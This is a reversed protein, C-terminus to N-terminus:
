RPEDRGLGAQLLRVLDQVPLAGSVTPGTGIRYSPVATVGREIARREDTRVEGTYRGSRLAQEAVPEAIGTRAALGVLVGRDSLDLADAHYASFLQDLLQEGMGEDVALHYLRHADFTNTPRVAEPHLIVGAAAGESRIREMVASIEATSMGWEDHMIEVLRTSQGGPHRPRLEFSRWATRVGSPHQVQALADYWRKRGLLCWPCAIDIWIEVDLPSEPHGDKHRRTM